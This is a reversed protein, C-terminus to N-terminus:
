LCCVLFNVQKFEQEIQVLQELSLNALNIQEPKNAGESASM